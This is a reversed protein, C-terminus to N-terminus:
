QDCDHKAVPPAQVRREQGKRIGHVITGLVCGCEAIALGFTGVRGLVIGCASKTGGNQVPRRNVHLCRATARAGGYVLIRGSQPGGMTYVCRRQWRVFTRAPGVHLFADRRASREALVADCLISFGQFVGCRAMKGRTHGNTCNQYNLTVHKIIRLTHIEMPIGTAMCKHRHVMWLIGLGHQQLLANEM